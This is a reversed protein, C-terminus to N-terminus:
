FVIAILYKFPLKIISKSEVIGRSENAPINKSSAVAACNLSKPQKFNILTIRNFRIIRSRLTGPCM